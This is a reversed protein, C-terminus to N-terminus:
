KRFGVAKVKCDDPIGDPYIEALLEGFAPLVDLISSPDFLFITNQRGQCDPNGDIDQTDVTLKSAVTAIKQGFRMSQSLSLSEPVPFTEQSEETEWERFIAQNIDGFRQIVQTEPFVRNLLKSQANNTDQMEDVFIWPFRTNLVKPLDPFKQLYAEAFANMDDYRFIGEDCIRDKLQLLEEFTPTEKGVNITGKECGLKLDPGEYRLTPIVKSANRKKYKLFYILYHILHVVGYARETFRDNDVAVVDIGM